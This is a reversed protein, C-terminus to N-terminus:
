TLHCTTRDLKDLVLGYGSYGPNVIRYIRVRGYRGLIGTLWRLREPSFMRDPRHVEPESVRRRHSLFLPHNRVFIEEMVPNCRMNRPDDDPVSILVRKKCVRVAENVARVVDDDELHELLEFMVSTDFCSDRFPLLRADAQVSNCHKWPDLDVAVVNEPARGSWVYGDKAGIDVVRGM